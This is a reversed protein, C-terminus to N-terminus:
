GAAPLRIIFRAGGAAPSELTLVGGHATVISRAISLGLGAGGTERGRDADLRVFPEFVRARAELPIGPGTDLVSLIGAHDERGVTLEVRGGSPTYKVANEVLNLTARRLASADGLVQVPEDIDIRVSVGRSRALRAGVDVVELALQDLEIRARATAEAGSRAVLLLDEALRILRDVETLSAALVDRYADASREVRLAVELGGKLATLPTRLEHAADASFRRMEAFAGELRALMENLTETLRDLEDGTGRLRLRRSLDEARIRRAERSIADVPALAKRAMLAGSVAALGLALPILVVFTELYHALARRTHTLSVAVQVFASPEPEDTVPLTALRAPENGLQVTEFDPMGTRAGGHTGGAPALTRGKLRPSRYTVTGQGDVVQFLQDHFEADLELDAPHRTAVAGRLIKALGLLQRDVDEALARALLSYSFAGVIVLSILLVSTYWLALRTHISLPSIRRIM